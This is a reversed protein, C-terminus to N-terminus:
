VNFEALPDVTDEVPAPTAVEPAAEPEAAEVPKANYEVVLALVGPIAAVLDELTNALAAQNKGEKGQKAAFTMLVERNAARAEKQEKTLVTRSAGKVRNAKANFETLAALAEERTSFYRKRQGIQACIKAPVEVLAANLDVAPAATVTANTTTLITEPAAPKIEPTEPVAKVDPKVTTSKKPKLAATEKTAM